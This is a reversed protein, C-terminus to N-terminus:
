LFPGMNKSLLQFRFDRELSALIYNVYSFSYQWDQFCSKVKLFWNPIQQYFEHHSDVFLYKNPKTQQTKHWILGQLNNLALDM